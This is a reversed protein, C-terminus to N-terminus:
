GKATAMLSQELYADIGKRPFRCNRGVKIMPFPLDRSHIRQYIWSKPVRLIEAVEGVDLLEHGSKALDVEESIGRSNKTQESLRLYLRVRLAELEGLLDPIDSVPIHEIQRTTALIDTLKM